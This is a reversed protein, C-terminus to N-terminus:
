AMLHAQLLAAVKQPQELPGLHSAGTLTECRGNALRAAQTAAESPPYMKDDGGAVILTPCTVRALEATLDPRELSVCRIADGLAPAERVSRRVHERLSPSAAPSLMAGGLIKGATGASLKLIGLLLRMQLRQGAKLANMPSGIATLTRIRKPFAIAACVGVHGGWANGVWDVADLHLADLVQMAACACAALDYRRAPGPSEGHGPGDVVICRRPQLEAILPLLSRHDLFLSPWLFVPAGSGEEFVALKGVETEIAHRM